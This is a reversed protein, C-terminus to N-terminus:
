HSLALNEGGCWFSRTDDLSVTLLSAHILKVSQGFLAVPLKPLESVLKEGLKSQKKTVATKRVFPGRNASAEMKTGDM